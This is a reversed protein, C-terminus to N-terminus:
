WGHFRSSTAAICTVVTLAIEASRIPPQWCCDDEEDIGEGVDEGGPPEEPDDPRLPPPCGLLEPPEPRLEGLM